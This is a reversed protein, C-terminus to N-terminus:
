QKKKKFISIIAPAISLILEIIALGKGSKNKPM